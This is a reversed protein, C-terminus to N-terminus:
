TVGRGRPCQHNATLNSRRTQCCGGHLGTSSDSLHRDIRIGVSRTYNNQRSSAILTLIHCEFIICICVLLMKQITFNSSVKPKHRFLSENIQVITHPGGLVIQPDGLLKQSCVKRLWQYINIATHEGVEAEEHADTVPYQRVWFYILLVWKNLPLRSKAFFSNYWISKRTYCQPCYWSVGDSVDNRERQIM